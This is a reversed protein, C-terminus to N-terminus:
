AVKMHLYKYKLTKEMHFHQRFILLWVYYYQRGAKAHMTPHAKYLLNIGYIQFNKNCFYKRPKCLGRFYFVRFIKRTVVDEIGAPSECLCTVVKRETDSLDDTKVAM